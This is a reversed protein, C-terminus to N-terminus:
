MNRLWYDFTGRAKQELADKIAAVEEESFKDNIRVTIYIGKNGPGLQSIFDLVGPGHVQLDRILPSYHAEEFRFVVAL